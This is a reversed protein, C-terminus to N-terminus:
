LQDLVEAYRRACLVMFRKNIALSRQVLSQAETLDGSGQELQSMLEKIQLPIPDWEAFMQELHQVQDPQEFCRTLADRKYGRNFAEVYVTVLKGLLSHLESAVARHPSPARTLNALREALPEMVGWRLMRAVTLAQALSTAPGEPELTTEKPLDTFLVKFSLLDRKRRFSRVAPRYVESHGASEDHYRYLPLGTSALRKPTFAILRVLDSLATVWEGTHDSMQDMAQYFMAWDYGDERDALEFLRLSDADGFVRADPPLETERSGRLSDEKLQIRIEKAFARMELPGSVAEIITEELEGCVQAYQDQMLEPFVPKAGPRPEEVYIQRLLARLAARDNRSVKVNQYYRLPDPPVVGEDHLVILGRNSASSGSDTPMHFAHFIGSEYLCWDWSLQPDTYLIILKDAEKLEKLLAERWEAGAPLQESVFVHLRDPNHARLRAALKQAGEADEDKHSIFIRLGQDTAIATQGNSM